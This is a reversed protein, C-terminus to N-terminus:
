GLAIDWYGNHPDYPLIQSLMFGEELLVSAQTKSSDPAKHKSDSKNPKGECKVWDGDM